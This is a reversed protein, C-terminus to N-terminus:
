PTKIKADEVVKYGEQGLYKIAECLGTLEYTDTGADVIAQAIELKTLKKQALQLQRKTSSSIGSSLALNQVCVNYVGDEVTKFEIGFHRLTGAIVAITEEATNAEEVPVTENKVAALIKQKAESSNAFWMISAGDIVMIAKGKGNLHALAASVPELEESSLSEPTCRYIAAGIQRSTQGTSTLRELVQDTDITENKTM